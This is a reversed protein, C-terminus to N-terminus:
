LVAALVLNARSDPAGGLLLSMPDDAAASANRFLESVGMRYSLTKHPEM